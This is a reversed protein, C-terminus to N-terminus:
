DYHSRLGIHMGSVHYLIRLKEVMIQAERWTYRNVTLQWRFGCSNVKARSNKVLPFDKM